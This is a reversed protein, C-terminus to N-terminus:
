RPGPKQLIFRIPIRTSRWYSYESYGIRESDRADHHAFSFLEKESMSSADLHKQVAESVHQELKKSTHQKISFRSM